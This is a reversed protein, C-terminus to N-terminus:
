LRHKGCYSAGNEENGGQDHCTKSVRRRSGKSAGWALGRAPLQGEEGPNKVADKWHEWQADQLLPHAASAGANTMVSILESTSFNYDQSNRFGRSELFSKVAKEMLPELKERQETTLFVRRDMEALAIRVFSRVAMMQQTEVLEQWRKKEEPTLIEDVKKKWEPLLRADGEGPLNTSITMRRAVFMSRQQESMAALRDHMTKEWDNMFSEVAPKVAAELLKAREPAVGATEAINAAEFKLTDLMNDQIEDRVPKITKALEAAAAAKRDERAKQLAEIQGQPMAEKLVRSWEPEDDAKIPADFKVYYSKRGMVSKRTKETMGRLIITGRAVERASVREIVTKAAKDLAKSQDDSTKLAKKIEDVQARLDKDLPQCSKEAWDKLYAAIDKDRAARKEAVVKDWATARDAGLAAKVADQWLQRDDPMVWDEVPENSAVTELKWGPIRAVAREATNGFLYPRLAEVFKPKWAVVAEDVVKDSAATLTKTEEATLHVTQDMDKLLDQMHESLQQKKIPMGKDTFDSLAKEIAPDM